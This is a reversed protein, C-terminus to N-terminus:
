CLPVYPLYHPEDNMCLLKWTSRLYGIAWAPLVHVKSCNMDYALLSKDEGALFILNWESHVVIVRYSVDCVETGIEINKKQFLVLTTV